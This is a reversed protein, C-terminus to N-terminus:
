QQIMHTKGFMNLSLEKVRDNLSSTNIINEIDKLNRHKDDMYYAQDEVLYEEQGVTFIASVPQEALVPFAFVLCFLSILVLRFLLKHVTKGELLMSNIQNM